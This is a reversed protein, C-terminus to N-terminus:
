PSLSGDGTAVRTFSEDTLEQFTYWGQLGFDQEMGFVYTNLADWNKLEPMKVTIKLKADDWANAAADEQGELGVSEEDSERTELGISGESNANGVPLYGEAAPDTSLGIGSDTNNLSMTGDSAVDGGLLNVVDTSEITIAGNGSKDSNSM